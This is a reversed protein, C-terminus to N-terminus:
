DSKRKSQEAHRTIEAPDGIIAECFKDGKGQCSVELSECKKGFTQEMAGTLIGRGFHCVPTKGNRNRVSVGNTWRIRAMRKALDVDVITLKGWGGLTGLSGAIKQLDGPSRIDLGSKKAMTMYQAGGQKGISYQFSTATIPGFSETLRDEISHILAVPIFLFRENYATIIGKAEDIDLAQM